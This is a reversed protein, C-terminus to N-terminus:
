AHPQSAQLQRIEEEYKEFVDAFLSESELKRCKSRLAVAALRGEEMQVAQELSGQLTLNASSWGKCRYTAKAFFPEWNWLQLQGCPSEQAAESSLSVGDYHKTVFM